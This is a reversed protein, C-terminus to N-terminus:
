HRFQIDGFKSIAILIDCFCILLKFGHKGRKEGRLLGINETPLVITYLGNGVMIQDTFILYTATDDFM